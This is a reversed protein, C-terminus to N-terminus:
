RNGTIRTHLLALGLAAMFTAIAFIFNTGVIFYSIIPFYAVAWWLTSKMGVKNYSAFAFFFIGAILVAFIQDGILENVAVCRFDIIECTM